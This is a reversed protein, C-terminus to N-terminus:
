AGTAPFELMVACADQGERFEKATCTLTFGMLGTAVDMDSIKAAIDAKNMVFKIGGEFEIVIMKEIIPVTIPKKFYGDDDATPATWTWGTLEEAVTPYVEALTLTLKTEGYTRVIRLPTGGILAAFITEEADAEELAADDLAGHIETTAATTALAPEGYKVSKPVAVMFSNVSM